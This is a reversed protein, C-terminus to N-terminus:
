LEDCVSLCLSVRPRPSARVSSSLAVVRPCVCQVCCVKKVYILECHLVYNERVVRSCVVLCSYYVDRVHSFLHVHVRKEPMHM